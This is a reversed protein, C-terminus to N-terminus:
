KNEEKLKEFFEEKDINLIELTKSIINKIKNRNNIFRFTNCLLNNFLLKNNEVTLLLVDNKLAIISEEKTKQNIIDSVIEDVTKNLYTEMNTM